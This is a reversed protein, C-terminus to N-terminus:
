KRLYEGVVEEMLGVILGWIGEFIVEFRVEGSVVEKMGRVFEESWFENNLFLVLYNFWKNFREEVNEVMKRVEKFESNRVLMVLM